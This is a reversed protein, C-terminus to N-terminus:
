SSRVEADVTIPGSKEFILTLTIKEGPKLDRKLGILMVHFGGPKLEAQGKAPVEVFQVPNMRMVDGEMTSEHLEVAQAVDSEVRLLRDTVDGKNVLLMYAASNMADGPMGAAPMEGQGSEAMVGVARVWPDQVVILPTGATGGACSSLFLVLIAAQMFAKPTNL